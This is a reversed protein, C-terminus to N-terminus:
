IINRVMTKYENREGKLYTKKNGTTKGAHRVVQYGKIKPKGM